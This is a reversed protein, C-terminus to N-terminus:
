GKAHKRKRLTSQNKVQARLRRAEKPDVQLPLCIEVRDGDNLISEESCKQTWVTVSEDESVTINAAQLAHKVSAGTGLEITFKNLGDRTQQVIHIQM